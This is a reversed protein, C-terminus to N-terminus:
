TQQTMKTTIFPCCVHFADVVPERAVVDLAFVEVAQVCANVDARIDFAFLWLTHGVALLELAEFTVGPQALNWADTYM